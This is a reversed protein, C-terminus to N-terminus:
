MEERKMVRRHNVMALVAGILEGMYKDSNSIPLFPVVLMLGVIVILHGGPSDLLMMLDRIKSMGKTDKSLLLNQYSLQQM